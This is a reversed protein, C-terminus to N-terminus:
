LRIPGGDNIGDTTSQFTTQPAHSYLSYLMVFQSALSTHVNEKYQSM